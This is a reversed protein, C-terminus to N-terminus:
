SVGEWYNNEFYDREFYRKVQSKKHNIFIEVFYTDTNERIVRARVARDRRVFSYETALKDNLAVQLKDALTETHSTNM